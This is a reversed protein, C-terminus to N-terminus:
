SRFIRYVGYVAIGLLFGVGLQAVALFSFFLINSADSGGLGEAIVPALYLVWPNFFAAGIVAWGSGSCGDSVCMLGALIAWCAFAYAM